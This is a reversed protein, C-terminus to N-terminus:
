HAHVNIPGEDTVNVFNRRPIASLCAIVPAKWQLIPSPRKRQMALEKIQSNKSKWAPAQACM